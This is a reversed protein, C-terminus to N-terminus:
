LLDVLFSYHYM